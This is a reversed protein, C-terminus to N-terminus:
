ITQRAVAVQFVGYVGILQRRVACDPYSAAVQLLSHAMETQEQVSAHHVSHHINAMRATEDLALWHRIRAGHAVEQIFAGIAHHSQTEAEALM